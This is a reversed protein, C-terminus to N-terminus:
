LCGLYIAIIGLPMAIKLLQSILSANFRKISEICYIIYVILIDLGLIAWLYTQNYFGAFHVLVTVVVFLVLIWLVIRKAYHKGRIIPLTKAGLAKDGDYDEIDKVIERGLHLIFAMVAAPFVKRFEGYISGGYVFALSATFAVIINGSIPTRKLYLNYFLMCTIAIIGIIFTSKSLQYSIAMAILGLIVAEVIAAKVSIIGSPLPRNTRNIKDIEIDKIDNVVNAFGAFAFGATGAIIGSLENYGGGAILYSVWVAISSIIGNLPRLIKVTGYLRM